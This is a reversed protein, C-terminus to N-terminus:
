TEDGWLGERLKDAADCIRGILKRLQAENAGEALDRATQAEIIVVGCRHNIEELAKGMALPHIPEFKKAM